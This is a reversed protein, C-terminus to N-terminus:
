CGESLTSLAADIARLVELPENSGDDLYPAAADILFPRANRAAEILKAVLDRAAISDVLLENVREDKNGEHLRVLVALAGIVSGVDIQKGM